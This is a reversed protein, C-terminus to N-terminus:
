PLSSLFSWFPRHPRAGRMCRDVQALFVTNLTVTTYVTTQLNTLRSEVCVCMCVGYRRKRATWCARHLLRRPIELEVFGFSHSLSFSSLARNMRTKCARHRANASVRRIALLILIAFAGAAKIADECHYRNPTFSIQILGRTM